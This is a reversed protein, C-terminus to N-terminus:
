KKKKEPEENAKLFKFAALGCLCIVSIGLSITKDAVFSVLVVVAAGIALMGETKDNMEVM